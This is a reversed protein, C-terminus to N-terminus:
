SWHIIDNLAYQVLRLLLSDTSCNLQLDGALTGSTREDYSPM